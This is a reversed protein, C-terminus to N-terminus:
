YIKHKGRAPAPALWATIQPWAVSYIAPFYKEPGPCRDPGIYRHVYRIIKVHPYSGIQTLM